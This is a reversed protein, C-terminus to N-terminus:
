IKNPSIQTLALSQSISLNSTKADGQSFTITM